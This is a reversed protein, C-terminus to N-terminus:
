KVKNGWGGCCGSSRGETLIAPFPKVSSIHPARNHWKDQAMISSALDITPTPDTISTDWSFFINPSYPCACSALYFLYSLGFRSKVCARVQGSSFRQPTFSSRWLTYL